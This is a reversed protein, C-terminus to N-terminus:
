INKPNRSGRGAIITDCHTSQVSQEKCAAQRMDGGGIAEDDRYFMGGIAEDDRYFMLLSFSYNQWNRIM